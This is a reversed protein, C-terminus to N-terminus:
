AESDDLVEAKRKREEWAMSNSRVENEWKRSEIGNPTQRWVNLINNNHQRRREAEEAFTKEEDTKDIEEKLRILELLRATEAAIVAERAHGHQVATKADGNGNLGACYRWADARAEKDMEVKWNVPIPGLKLIPEGGNLDAPVGNRRRQTILIKKRKDDSKRLVERDEASREGEPKLCILRLAEANQIHFRASAHSNATKATGDKNEGAAFEWANARDNGQLHSKWNAPPPKFVGSVPM